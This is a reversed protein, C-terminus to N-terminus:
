NEAKRKKRSKRNKRNKRNKSVQFKKAKKELGKMVAEEFEGGILHVPIFKAGSLDHCLEAERVWSASDDSASSHIPQGSIYTSRIGTVTLTKVNGDADLGCIIGRPTRVM